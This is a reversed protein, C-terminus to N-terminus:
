INGKSSHRVLEIVADKIKVEEAYGGFSIGAYGAIVALLLVLQMKAFFCFMRYKKKREQQRSQEDRNLVIKHYTILLQEYNWRCSRTFILIQRRSKESRVILNCSTAQTFTKMM